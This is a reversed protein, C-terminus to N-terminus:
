VSPMYEDEKLVGNSVFKICEQGKIIDRQGTRGNRHHGLRDLNGNMNGEKYKVRKNMCEKAM